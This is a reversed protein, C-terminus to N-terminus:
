FYIFFFLLYRSDLSYFSNFLLHHLTMRNNNTLVKKRLCGSLSYRKYKVRDEKIQWIEKLHSPMLYHKWSPFNMPFSETLKLNCYYNVLVKLWGLFCAPFIIRLLFASLLNVKAYAITSLYNNLMNEPVQIFLLPLCMIPCLSHM